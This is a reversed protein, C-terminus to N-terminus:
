GPALEGAGPRALSLAGLDAEGPAAADALWNLPNM